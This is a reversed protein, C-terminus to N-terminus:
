SSMGTHRPLGIPVKTQRSGATIRRSSAADKMTSCLTLHEDLERHGSDVVAAGGRMCPIRLAWATHVFPTAEAKSGFNFM